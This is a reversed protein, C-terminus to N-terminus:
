GVRPGEIKLDFYNLVPWLIIFDWLAMTETSTNKSLYTFSKFPLPAPVKEQQDAIM